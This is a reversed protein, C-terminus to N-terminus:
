LSRGLIKKIAEDDGDLDFDFNAFQVDPEIRVDESRFYFNDQETHSWGDASGDRVRLGLHHSSHDYYLSSHNDADWTNGAIACDAQTVHDTTNNDADLCSGWSVHFFDDTDNDSGGPEDGDGDFDGEVSDFYVVFDIVLESPWSDDYCYYLHNRTITYVLTYNEDDITVHDMSAVNSEMSAFQFYHPANDETDSMLESNYMTVNSPHFGVKVGVKENGLYDAHNEDAYNGTLQVTITVSTTSNIFGSVLRTGTIGGTVIVEEPVQGYLFYIHFFISILLYSYKM